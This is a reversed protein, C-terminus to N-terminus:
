TSELFTSHSVKGELKTIVEILCTQGSNVKKIGRKIAPVIEDPREVREGYAGLAEAVGAYNGTMSGTKFVKNATPFGGITSLTSNNLIITMLPINERVSTEVDMGVMGFAGDGMVNVVLKETEVLKAGMACGLTFGLTTSHGFGIYGRPTVSEYTTSMQDRPKGSEATVITNERDVTNMLDWIVRLPNIPVEDSTLLPTWEVLWEGKKKSIEELMAKKENVRSGKKAENIMQTLALKADGLIAYDVPYGKGIDYECNTLQLIRANGPIPAQMWHRSLGAGVAFVLDAKGLFYKAAPTRVHAAVGLSLPHDEPFASKGTMTTVVPIQLIESLERLEDWAEAYLVGQGAYIIPNKAEKLARVSTKVDGPDASSRWGKVPKYSLESDFDELAVDQPLELLVPGPRGTRLTTFARRMMSPIQDAFLITDAWKSIHKFSDYANYGPFTRLQRRGVVEPLVLVPSSDAWAQAMGAYANQIGAGPQMTCVGITRGNSVRSAGNAIDVAVREKRTMITRIGENAAADTLEIDPFLTIFDVKERKLIKAQVEAGKM